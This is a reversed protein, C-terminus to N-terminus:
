IRKKKFKLQVYLYALISQFLAVSTEDTGCWLFPDSIRLAISGCFPIRFGVISNRYRRRYTRRFCKVSMWFVSFPGSAGETRTLVLFSPLRGYELLFCHSFPVTAFRALDPVVLWGSNSASPFAVNQMWAKMFSVQTELSPLNFFHNAICWLSGLQCLLCFPVGRTLMCMSMWVSRGCSFSSFLVSFILWGINLLQLIARCNLSDFLSFHLFLPITISHCLTFLSWLWRWLYIAEASSKRFSSGVRVITDFKVVALYYRIM